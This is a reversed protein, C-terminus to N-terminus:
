ILGGSHLFEDYLGNFTDKVRLVLQDAWEKGSTNELGYMNGDIKYQPDLVIAVYLLVNIRSLDEWYEEYKFRINLAVISLASDVSQCMEDLEEKM